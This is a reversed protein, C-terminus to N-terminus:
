FRFSLGLRLATNHGADLVLPARDIADQRLLAGIASGELTLTSAGCIMAIGEPDLCALIGHTGWDISTPTDDMRNNAPIQLTAVGGELTFNYMNEHHWLTGDEGDPGTITINLMQNLAATSPDIQVTVDSASAPTFSTLWFKADVGDMAIDDTWWYVDNGVAPCWWHDELLDGNTNNWWIHYSEECGTYTAPSETIETINYLITEEEIEPAPPLSIPGGNGSWIQTHTSATNWTENIRMPFDYVEQPPDYEHTHTFDAIGTMWIGFADFDLDISQVRHIIALDSARVWRTEHYDVILEGSAFIGTNPEPFRGDGTGIADVELRYAPVWQGSVNYTTVSAVLITADGTVIDLTSGSLESSGQVLNVADLEIDYRWVDGANWTVINAEQSAGETSRISTTELTLPVSSVGLLLLVVVLSLVRAVYHGRCTLCILGGARKAIKMGIPIVRLNM